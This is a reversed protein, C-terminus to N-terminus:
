DSGADGIADAIDSIADAVAEARDAEKKKVLKILSCDTVALYTVGEQTDKILLIERKSNDYGATFVGQSHVEWREKLSEVINTSAVKQEPVYKVNQSKEEECGIALLAVLLFLFKKM